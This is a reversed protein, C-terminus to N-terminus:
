GRRREPGPGSAEQPNRSARASADTAPSQPAPQVVALGRARCDITVAEVGRAALDALVVRLAALNAAVRAEAPLLLRTGRPALVVRTEDEQSVDIESVRGELALAPDALRRVWRVARPWDDDAFKGGSPPRLGTVVPLDPVVGGVLPPLVVGDTAVELPRGALALAVPVRESVDVHVEGDLRRSLRADRVRKHRLLKGRAKDLDVRFFPVREALGASAIVEEPSLYVNGSVTVHARGLGLLAVGRAIVHRGLWLGVGLVVALVVVAGIFAVGRPKRPAPAHRARGEGSDALSTGRYRSAVGIRVHPRASKGPEPRRM